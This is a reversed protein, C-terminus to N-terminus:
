AAQQNIQQLQRRRGRQLIKSDLWAEETLYAHIGDQDPGFIRPLRVFEYGMRALQRKLHEDDYRIRMFMMQCLCQEFPYEHMMRLTTPTAWYYGPLAAGSMEAVAAEPWFHYVLGAILEDDEKVIGIAKYAMPFGRRMHPIMRAVFDAVLEHRDLVYRLKM